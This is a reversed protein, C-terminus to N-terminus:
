VLSVGRPVRVVYTGAIKDHWAQKEVDWAIWLFGLGAVFFPFLCSLGRVVAEVFTLPQGDVRVVKLGFVINGITAGKWTWLAVAYAVLGAFLYGPGDNLLGLM